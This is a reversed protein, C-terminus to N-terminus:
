RGRGRRSSVTLALCIAAAQIAYALVASVGAEREMNGSGAAVAGFFLASVGVGVPHLGGLLAVAVATYGTGASFGEYVRYTVGTVEVAGALGALAGSLLFAAWLVGATPIGAARAAEPNMGVARIRFGIPTHFLMAHALPVSLLALVFGLHLRTPPLLRPLQAAAGLAETQPFAGSPEQLPGQVAYSLIHIAVFNLMITGIVEPVGRRLRLLAAIGAWAAGFLAGIAMLTPVLLPTPLGRLLNGLWAAGLAGMLFQGEAGINWLRCRFAIAVGLGALILPAAKIALEHLSWIETLPGVFYAYLGDVPNKGLFLFILGGALVMLAFAIFPSLASFLASQHPRKVLELRM